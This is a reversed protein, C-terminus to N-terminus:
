RGAMARHRGGGCRQGDPRRGGCKKGPRLALGQLGRRRRVCGAELDRDVGAMGAREGPEAGLGERLLEEEAGAREDELDGSEAEDVESGAREESLVCM